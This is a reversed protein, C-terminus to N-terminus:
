KLYEVQYGMKDIIDYFGFWSADVETDEPTQIVKLGIGHSDVTKAVVQTICKFEVGEYSLHVEIKKPLKKELKEDLYVFFGTESWNTLYGSFSNENSILKCTFQKLMPEFLDENSYLSNYYSEELEIKLFIFLYYATIIYLFLILTILKSFDLVLQNSILGITVLSSIIYFFKSKKSLRYTLLATLGFLVILYKNSNVFSILFSKNFISESLYVANSLYVFIFSLFMFLIVNWITASKYYIKLKM